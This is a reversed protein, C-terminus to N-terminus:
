GAASTVERGDRAGEEQLSIAYQHLKEVAQIVRSMESSLKEMDTRVKGTCQSSLMILQTFGMIVALPNNLEHSVLRLRSGVEQLVNRDEGSLTRQRSLTARMMYGTHQDGRGQLSVLSSRSHLIMGSRDVLALDGEWAGWECASEMLQPIEFASQDALIQTIPRGVLDQASYGIVQETDPSVSNILGKTSFTVVLSRSHNSGFSMTRWAAITPRQLDESQNKSEITM